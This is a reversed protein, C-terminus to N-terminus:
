KNVNTNVLVNTQMDNYYMKIYKNFVIWNIM